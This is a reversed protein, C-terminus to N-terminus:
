GGLIKNIVLQLDFINYLDDENLDCRECSGSGLICNIALQLDFINILRDGNIDGPQCSLIVIDDFYITGAMEEWEFGVQFSSLDSLGVGEDEFVTLPIDVRQWAPTVTLYDEIDILGRIETGGTGSVLYINPREAGVAGKIYFSLMHDGSADLGTLDMVVLAWTSGSIGSYSIRYGAGQAGVRHTQDYAGEISAGGGSLTWLWGGLGNEGTMDNFNDVVIPVCLLYECKIDDLFITGVGSGIRHEVDINMNEMGSWDVIGTFAALPITVKQWATTIGAPLYEGIGIKTENLSRDRLGVRVKEGGSAGKVLFTLTTYLSLNAPQGLLSYYGGYSDTASVDYEVRVDGPRHYVSVASGSETGFPGSMEGLLNVPNTDAFDDILLYPHESVQFRYITSPIDVPDTAINGDVDTAEIFYWVNTGLQQGPISASFTDDGSAAMPVSTFSAGNDTSYFLSVTQLDNDDTVTTNVIYPGAVNSTHPLVTTERIITSNFFAVRDIALEVSELPDGVSAWAVSIIDEATLSVLKTPDWGRQSFLSLPIVFQRWESSTTFVFQHFDTSEVDRVAKTEINVRYSKGDGKAFFTLAQYQSVDIPLDNPNLTMAMGVWGNLAVSGTIEGCGPLIYDDTTLNAAEACNPKSLTVDSDGSPDAFAFAYGSGVYVRDAFGNVWVHILADTINGLSLEVENFGPELVVDDNLPVDTERDTPFRMSGTFNVTQAQPLWSQVTMKVSNGALEASNILVTPAVPETTNAFVVTWGQDFSAFNELTRRLLHYAEESSSAWIQFNFIYEHEPPGPIPYHDSLWHSDVTFTKTEEDVFAAFIFGEEVLDNKTMSSYWFWPVDTAGPLIGPLPFAVATEITYAHFRNCLPYEHDYPVAITKTAYVTAKNLSTETDVFDMAAADVANSGVDFPESPTAPVADTGDPGETPIIDTLTVLPLPQAFAEQTTFVSSIAQFLKRKFTSLISTHQKTSFSSYQYFYSPRVNKLPKSEIGGGSSGGTGGGGPGGDGGGGHGGGTNGTNDGRPWASIITFVGGVIACGGVFAGGGTAVAVGGGIVATAGAAVGWWDYGFPDVRNIPNNNVYLYLNTGNIFRLPDKQIFRGVGPDYYRARYYYFDSEVDHERGTFRYPNVVSGTQSRISGFAEYEYTAVIDEASNTLVTVSGLGDQHYSYSSGGQNMSIWNDIGASTYRATTTGTSDTEVLVNFGDYFYNTRVGSKDTTSLRRGDPYYSFTNTSADPFIIAILRNKYDYDYTTTNSNETKGTMNGNDDWGYTAAGANQLRDGDDYSYNTTGTTDTLTLRNGVPDYSYEQVSADPYVVRTLQNLADYTYTTIGGDAETMKTRNGVDDYEYSYSSIIEDSSKRNVLSLLRNARDYQYTAYTGNHLDKRILRGRSDYTFNTTQGAPNTLSILRNAEDYAYSMNGSDPDTMGTRNGAADYTYSISKGHSTYNVDTVRNLADYTYLVSADTNSMSLINGAADYSYSAIGGESVLNGYSDYAYSTTVGNADTTSTLDGNSNYTYSTMNGLPDTEGILNGQADYEYTTANDNVDTVSTLNNYTSEYSYTTTGNAGDTVSLLNGMDDYTYVTTVGNEDTAGTLNNNADWIFNRSIVGLDTDREIQTIRKDSDYFFRSIQNAEPAPDTMTTILTDTDYSFSKSLLPGSVNIVAGDTYTMTTMNDRPDTISTLFHEADYGYETTNGGADQISILNENSDYQVYVSRTTHDSISTLKGNTYTFNMERGSTDSLRTLLMDANYSFNLANDNPDRITTVRKHVPSDFDYQMGDKTRLVYKGPQYEQLTNYTDVPSLFAGNNKIFQESRGDEWVVTIDGNEGRVYFMNYSLQWGHGYHSPSEHWSSNYSMFIEVPIGRGPLTLIPVPYFLNGSWTNIRVSGPGSVVIQTNHNTAAGSTPDGNQAFAQPHPVIQLLLALICCIAVTKRSRGNTFNKTSYM